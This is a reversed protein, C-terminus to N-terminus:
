EHHAVNHFIVRTVCAFVILMCNRCQSFEQMDWPAHSWQLRLVIEPMQVLLDRDCNVQMSNGNSNSRKVTSPRGNGNGSEAM